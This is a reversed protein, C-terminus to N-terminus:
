YKFRDVVAERWDLINQARAGDAAMLKRENVLGADNDIANRVADTYVSSDDLGGDMVRHDAAYYHLEEISDRAAKLSEDSRDTFYLLLDGIAYLFLNQLQELHGADQEDITAKNIVRDINRSNFKISDTALWEWSRDLFIELDKPVSINESRLM